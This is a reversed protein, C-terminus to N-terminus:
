TVHIEERIVNRGAIERDRFQALTVSGHADILALTQAVMRDYADRAFVIGEAVRVISGEDALVTLTMPGVGLTTPDPPAYPDKALAALLADAAARQATPLSVTHEPMRLVPTGNGAEAVIRGKHHLHGVFADFLRASLGLRSRAEERPMGRKLPNATHYHALLLTLRSKLAVAGSELLLFSSPSLANSGPSLMLLEGTAILATLIPHAVEETLKMAAIVERVECPGNALLQRALDHPTGRELSELRKLTAAHFRRHRGPASDVVTGGGITESPSPRRLIFRDGRVVAVPEALRLQVWGEDGADLREADLLTARGQVESAGIFLDVPDNQALAPASVTMRLRVDLLHTPVLWGPPTLVDGRHVDEVAVGSVNVATRSGPLALSVKAQHTQLGRVRGRIGRPLLEVEQGAALTGDLLTGTVVTGFGSITFARDVPLRPHGHPTRPPTDALLADLAAKLEDLGQGTTAATTILPADKLTTGAVADRTAEAALELFEEDVTDAKTLVILGRRIGLLDLIALHERTQPMPGEDAAVILLAADIGGVGALMNKIFREHGPVDVISVVQGSPLTLWAFGLDITMARAKEEALRDPDIGTLARVLTSKGHDVHGATGVVYAREVADDTGSSNTANM